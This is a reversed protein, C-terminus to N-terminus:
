LVDTAAIISYMFVIRRPSRVTCRASTSGSTCSTAGNAGCMASSSHSFSPRALLTNSLPQGCKSAAAATLSVIWSTTCTFPLVRPVTVTGLPTASTAASAASAAARASAFMAFNM